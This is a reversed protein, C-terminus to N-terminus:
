LSKGTCEETMHGREGSTLAAESWKREDASWDETSESHIEHGNEKAKGGKQKEKEM